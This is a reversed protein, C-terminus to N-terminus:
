APRSQAEILMESMRVLDFTREGAGFSKWGSFRRVSGSFGANGGDSRTCETCLPCRDPSRRGATAKLLNRYGRDVRQCRSLAKRRDRKQIKGTEVTWMVLIVGIHVWVAKALWFLACAPVTL